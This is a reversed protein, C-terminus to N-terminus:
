FVAPLRLLSVLYSGDGVSGVRLRNSLGALKAARVASKDAIGIAFKLSDGVGRPDPAIICLSAASAM